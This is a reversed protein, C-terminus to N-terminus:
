QFLTKVEGWSVGENPVAVCDFLGMVPLSFDRGEGSGAVTYAESLSFNDNADTIAIAGPISQAAADSVPAIFVAGPDTTFAGLTITILTCQGGVVPINAGCFFDPPSMFNTASPHIVPTVFLGAPFSLNFEFGGVNAMPTGTNQNVPNTLVCYVTFQGPGGSYCAMEEANEATPTATTFVGIENEGEFLFQANAVGAILMLTATLVFFRKM